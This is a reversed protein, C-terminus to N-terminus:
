IGAYFFLFYVNAAGLLVAWLIMGLASQGIMPPLMRITTGAAIFGLLNVLLVQWWALARFDFILACILSGLYVACLAEHLLSGGRGRFIPPQNLPHMSAQSMFASWGLILAYFFGVALELM